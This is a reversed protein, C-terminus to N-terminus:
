LNEVVKKQGCFDSCALPRLANEFDKEGQSFREGRIDFDEDMMIRRAFNRFLICFKAIFSIFIQMTM